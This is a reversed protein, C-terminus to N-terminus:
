KRLNYVKFFYSQKDKLLEAPTGTEIVWGGELVILKDSSIVTSLRHAIVIITMQRKLKEIAEQIMAESENDLASTAEDLILIQPRRALTRALVVRQREGGSLRLGREGVMTEFGKPLSKIFDYINAMKTAKAIDEATLSSDFFKINNYITDNMLFAEQPVYAINKRWESLSINSADEGDILMEGKQPRLLRLLLDVLTSKGAGSPGIIGTFSARQISFSVDNITPLRSDYSFGVNKFELLNDFKFPLVGGSKEKHREAEEKYSLISEVHPIASSIMHIEGQAAQINSFVRNIAYVVVAFSAFTLAQTKYFFAFIGLIFLIAIPQLVIDTLNKLITVRIYIAKMRAFYKLSKQFVANEALSSKIAKMGYIIENAYHALDKYKQAMEASAIRNKQFLPTFLLFIVGGFVLALLAVIFSVNMALFSYVALTTMILIFSGIHVLLSSGIRIDTILIQDLHGAKQRALYPWSSETMAKFLDARTNEEYDASIRIAIYRSIFQAVAKVMFMLMIFIILYKVTYQLDLYSFIKETTQSIIDTPRGGEIISFIPIITNIGVVEFIGGAFNLIGLVAIQHKYQGFASQILTIIKILKNSEIDM